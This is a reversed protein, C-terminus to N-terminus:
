TSRRQPPPKDVPSSSPRTLRGEVIREIARFLKEIHKAGTGPPLAAYLITKEADTLQVTM